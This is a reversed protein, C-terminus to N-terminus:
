VTKELPFSLTVKFLDGDIAIDLTGHMLRTLSEAISLGLGSGVKTRAEDGRKFRELLRQADIHLAEESTNRVTVVGKEANEEVDLYVRTGPMAYKQANNLVNDLVRYLHRGDARILIHRPPIAVRLELQRDQWKDEYEGIVQLLLENLDIVDARVDLAGSSARSAEILDDMLQRLRQAKQDLVAIYERAKENEITERQLLNIYSIISTLPTRLDHSVNTILDTQMRENKVSACVARDVSLEIQALEEALKRNQPLYRPLGSDDPETVPAREGQAIKRARRFLSEKEEQDRLAFYLFGADLLFFFLWRRSLELLCLFQLFFFGCLVLVLSWTRKPRSKGGSFLNGITEFLHQLVSGQYFRKAKWKRVLASLLYLGILEPLIMLFSLVTGRWDWLTMPASASEWVESSFGFFDWLSLFYFITGVCFLASAVLYVEVPVKAEMRTWFGRRVPTHMLFLVLSVIWLVAGIGFLATARWFNPQAEEYDLKAVSIRDKENLRLDLRMTLSGGSLPADLYLPSQAFAHRFERSWKGDGVDLMSVYPRDSLTFQGELPASFDADRFRADAANTYENGSRAYSIRFALNSKEPAFARMAQQLKGEEKFTALAQFIEEPDNGTEMLFAWIDTGDVPTPIEQVVPLFIEELAQPHNERNVPRWYENKSRTTEVDEEQQEPFFYRYADQEPVWQRTIRVTRYRIPNKQWAELDAKRFLPFTRSRAEEEGRWAGREEGWASLYRQAIVAAEKDDPNQSMDAFYEVVYNWPMNIVAPCLAAKAPIKDYWQMAEVQLSDELVSASEDRFACAWEGSAYFSTNPASPSSKWSSVVMNLLGIFILVISVLQVTLPLGTFRRVSDKKPTEPMTSDSGIGNQPVKEEQRSKKEATEQEQQKEKKDTKEM